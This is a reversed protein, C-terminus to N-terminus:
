QVKGLGEYVSTFADVAQQLVPQTDVDFEDMSAIVQPHFSPSIRTDVGMGLDQEM